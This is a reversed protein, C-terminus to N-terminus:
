LQVSVTAPAGRTSAPVTITVSKDWGADKNVLRIRQRGLPLSVINRPVRAIESPDMANRLKKGRYEVDAWTRGKGVLAIRVFGYVLSSELPVDIRAPRDHALDVTRVVEKYDVKTLRLTRGEGPDLDARVLPTEGIREGDLYVTAGEPRSDVRLQATLRRLTLPLLVPEGPDVRLDGYSSTQYGDLRVEVEHAVRPEVEAVLPTAGPQLVGDIYVQAGEPVTTVTLRAVRTIVVGADSVDTVPLRTPAEATDGPRALWVGGGAIVATAAIAAGLLWGRRRNRHDETIPELKELEELQGIADEDVDTDETGAIPPAESARRGRGMAAPAAAATNDLELVTIGDSDVRKVVSHGTAERLEEDPGGVATKRVTTARGQNDELQARILGDLDMRDGSEDRGAKGVIEEVAEAVGLPSAVITSEYSLELLERLIESAGPRAAPDRELVRALIEDVRPPLDPRVEAARKIEMTEINAIIEEAEDGPFLKDGTVLEYIVVGASFVDSATTLPEGRAQEPSMYRWKGMIRRSGTQKHKRKAAEAIGFDAIKVEGARSLLINSPSVDRHIVRRRHAFDLGRAIEIAIYLAAPIAIQDDAARYARLLHALDLGDVFEMAIFLSGAFRGFDFVQVINAHSLKVALKAENIFRQEFEPDRALEPLIRKIALTKEFGHAGSAKARFVEAMGGVAIRDLLEYRELRSSSTEPL